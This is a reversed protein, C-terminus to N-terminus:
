VMYVGGLGCYLCLLVDPIDRGEIEIRLANNQNKGVRLEM